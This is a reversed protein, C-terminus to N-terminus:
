PSPVIEVSHTAPRATIHASESAADEQTDLESMQSSVEDSVTETNKLAPVQLVRWRRFHLDNHKRILSLVNRSQKNEPLETIAALDIGEALEAGTTNGVETGDVKLVYSPGTLGSVTLRFRNLTTEADTSKLALQM